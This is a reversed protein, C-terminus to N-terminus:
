EIDLDNELESEDIDLDSTGDDETAAVAAAPVPDGGPEDKAQGNTMQRDWYMELAGDIKATAGDGLGKIDKLSKGASTYDALAGVTGLGAEKLKTTLAPTLQLIDIPDNRWADPSSPDRDGGLTDSAETTTKVPEGAAEAAAAPVGAPPADEEDDSGFPLEPQNKNKIAARLKGIAVEHRKKAQKFQEKLDSLEDDCTEIELELLTIKSAWRNVQDLKNTLTDIESM